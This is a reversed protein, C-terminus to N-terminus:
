FANIKCWGDREVFNPWSHRIFVWRIVIRHKISSFQACYCNWKQFFCLFNSDIESPQQWSLIDNWLKKLIKMLIFVHWSEKWKRGVGHLYIFNWFFTKTGRKLNGKKSTQGKRVITTLKISSISFQKHPELRKFPSFLFVLRFSLIM